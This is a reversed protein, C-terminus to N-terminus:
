ARLELSRLMNEFAPRLQRFDEEPAIFLLYLLTADDRQLAVLWDRERQPNGGKHNPSPGVLFVSKGPLGNVAIDEDYGIVRLDPNSQHLVALLQHTTADLSNDPGAEPQFSSVIVGYAVANDFIGARPAITVASSEDGFVQWNEPYAIRFASHNLTRYRDSPMIDTASVTGNSGDTRSEARRNPHGKPPAPMGLLRRKVAQFEARDTRSARPPGLQPIEADVAKIRNGPNPHDSLFQVTRNPYKKQIIEFFQAMAYPDYGAQYLIYTGIQDAQSEMGRSNHLFVSNVGFGIGFRALQGALSAGGGLLGGFVSLPAQALMMQSAQHTGHRMVVHGEEHAIVGALQAEDEAAEITGRNVYIFGGPLAFANIDGSNVVRFQWVYDSRNNPAHAALQRGLNNVYREVEADRLIPLQRDAQAANERGVQVDQKPSFLNFGPKFEPPGGFLLTPVAACVILLRVVGASYGATETRM